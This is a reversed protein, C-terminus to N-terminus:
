MCESKSYEEYTEWKWFKHWFTTQGISHNSLEVCQKLLM